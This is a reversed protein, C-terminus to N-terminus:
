ARSNTTVAGAPQSPDIQYLIGPITNAILFILGKAAVLAASGGSGTWTELLKGDSARVRSVTNGTVSAVWLDAGDSKVLVPYPGVTTLALGNASTPTWYQDLAARRSGRKLSQDLTRSVFAAMQERPVNASPSYTTGSTGNTLGTFYASAISCFFINSAPVDTFPLTTTGLGCTGTDAHLRSSAITIVLMLSIMLNARVTSRRSTNMTRRRSPVATLVVLPVACGVAACGCGRRERRRRGRVRNLAKHAAARYLWAAAYPASASHLRNFDIIVQPDVSFKSALGTVTDSSKTTVVIGHLPPIVIQDGTSVSDSSYLNTNSWRIEAVTVHYRAAITKLSEGAAVTYSFAQHSIPASTPISVPKIITSYRGLSVDGVAGGEGSVTAEANM